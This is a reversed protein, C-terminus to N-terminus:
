HCKLSVRVGVVLIKKEERYIQECFVSKGLLKFFIFLVVQTRMHSVPNLVGCLTYSSTPKIGPRIWHTIQWQQLSHCLDCICSPDATATAKAYAPLQLESRWGLFKWTGCTCSYLLYISVYIWLYMSIYMYIFPVVGEVWVEYFSAYSQFLYKLSWLPRNSESRAQLWVYVYIFTLKLLM